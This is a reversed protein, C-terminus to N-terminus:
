RTCCLADDVAQILEDISVTNSGNVDFAPCITAPALGLAIQVGSILEAINVCSDGSCDGTPPPLDAFTVLPYHYGSDVMGADPVGDVRTSRDDLGATAAETASFNIAPSDSKQGATLHQLRFEDDWFRRGGLCGDRGAVPAVFLPDAFPHAPPALRCGAETSECMAQECPTGESPRECISCNSPHIPGYISATGAGSRYVVNFAACLGEASVGASVNSDLQLANRGNEALINHRVLAGPSPVGGTGILIGNVGNRYITNNEVVARLSGVPGGIQVGGGIVGLTGNAYLLNNAIRVDNSDAVQIGVGRNSFVVANRVVANHTEKLQIAAAPSGGSRGAKTVAFGDIVLSCHGALDFGSGAFGADLVVRGPAGGSLEGSVDALFTVPGAPKRTELAINDRYTGPAAVIESKARAAEVARSLTALPREPSLGDNTDSGTPAVYLTQTTLPIEAFRPISFNAAHYGLDVAGSDTRGDSRTSARNLRLEPAPASGADIAPSTRSEGAEVSALAYNDAAPAVFRPDVLLLDSPDRPAEDSYLMGRPADLLNFAAIYDCTSFRDVDIAVGVRRTGTDVINNLVWAGPSPAGGDPNEAIVIGVQGNDVVTNNIIRARETGLVSIGTTANRYILNNFLLPEIADKVDIGRGLRDDGNEYTVNNAIAVRSPIEGFPGPKVQVGALKADVIHFGAVVVDSAGFVLFGTECRDPQSDHCPASQGVDVVVPGPADGTCTGTEDGLLQVPLYTGDSIGSARPLLDIDGEPYVGPGVIVATGAVSTASSNLAQVARTLTRWATQPSRGDNADNCQSPADCARV